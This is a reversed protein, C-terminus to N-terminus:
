SSLLQSGAILRSPSWAISVNWASCGPL